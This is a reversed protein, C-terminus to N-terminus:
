DEVEADREWQPCTECDSEVLNRRHDARVCVWVSEPQASDAVGSLRYGTRSWKCDWATQLTAIATTAMNPSRPSREHRIAHWESGARRCAGAQRTGAAAASWSLLNRLAMSITRLAGPEIEVIRTKPCTKSPV